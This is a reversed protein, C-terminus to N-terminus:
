PQKMIKTLARFDDTGARVFMQFLLTETPVLTVGASKMADMGGQWRLKSSSQIADTGVYVSYGLEVLDLATQLVCIHTEMGVLIVNDCASSGLAEIFDPCGCASFTDKEIPTIGELYPALGAATHGLGRPYQETLLIPADFHKFVSALMGTNRIMQATIRENMIKFLKEQIDIVALATNQPTMKRLSM